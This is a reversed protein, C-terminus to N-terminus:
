RHASPAAVAPRTQLWCCGPEREDGGGLEFVFFPAPHVFSETLWKLEDQGIRPPGCARLGHGSAAQEHYVLLQLGHGDRPMSAKRSLILGALQSPSPSRRAAQEKERQLPASVPKTIGPVAPFGVLSKKSKHVRM